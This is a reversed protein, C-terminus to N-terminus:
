IVIGSDLILELGLDNIDLMFFGFVSCTVALCINFAAFKFFPQWLQEAGVTQMVKAVFVADLEKNTQAQYANILEQETFKNKM